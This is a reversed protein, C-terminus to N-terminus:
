ISYVSTPAYQRRAPCQQAAFGASSYDRTMAALAANLIVRCDILRFGGDAAWWCCSSKSADDYDSM